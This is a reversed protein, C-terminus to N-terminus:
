AAAAEKAGDKAVLALFTDELTFDSKGVQGRLEELTGEAILRGSAIIGIRDALREAVELIHTTMIVTGGARVREGLVGKVQRASGADLGTLPEDLIIVTPEHVLAGALAVKQRMGKSFGECREHAHPSLGLWGLLERARTEAVTADVRWLGAVFELYEFPTLKDYIMPEDSIWAMLRKAAVPDRLADIGAISISGADPKLLGAVMRLTTTKGAGNPGVLAYFEGRKVCLDLGDVAPRDFRKVLGRLELALPSPPRTKM